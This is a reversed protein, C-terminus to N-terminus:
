LLMLAVTSLLYAAFAEDDDKWKDDSMVDNDDKSTIDQDDAAGAAFEGDLEAGTDAEFEGDLESANAPDNQGFDESGTAVESEGAGEEGTAADSEGTGDDGIAVENEGAGETGTGGADNVADNEGVGGANADDGATVEQPEVKLSTQTFYSPRLYKQNEVESTVANALLLLSLICVYKTLGM